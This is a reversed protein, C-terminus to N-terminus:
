APAAHQVKAKRPRKLLLLGVLAGFSSMFVLYVLILSLRALRVQRDGWFSEILTPNFSLHKICEADSLEAPCPPRNPRSFGVIFSATEGGGLFPVRVIVLTNVILLLVLSVVSVLVTRWFWRTLKSKSVSEAAQWQVVVAVLGMLAASLPIARDQISPHLLDLMPSFLPVNLRGLYPALGVAVSVSFGLIYRVLKAAMPTPPKPIANAARRVM